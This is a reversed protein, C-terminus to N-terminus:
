PMMKSGRLLVESNCFIMGLWLVVNDIWKSTRCKLRVIFPRLYLGCFEFDFHERPRREQNSAILEHAVPMCRAIEFHAIEPFDM